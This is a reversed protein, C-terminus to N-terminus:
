QSVPLQNLPPCGLCNPVCYKLYFPCNYSTTHPLYPCRLIWIPVGQCDGPCMEPVTGVPSILIRSRPVCVCRKPVGIQSLVLLALGKSAERASATIPLVQLVQFPVKQSHSQIYIEGQLILQPAQDKPIPNGRYMRLRARAKAGRVGGKEELGLGQGSACTRRPM